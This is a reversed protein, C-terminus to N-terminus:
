IWVPAIKHGHIWDICDEMWADYRDTYVAGAGMEWGLWIYLGKKGGEFLVM